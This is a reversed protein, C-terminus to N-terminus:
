LLENLRGTRQNTEPSILGTPAPKNHSSFMTDHSVLEPQFWCAFLSSADTPQKNVLEGVVSDFSVYFNCMYM